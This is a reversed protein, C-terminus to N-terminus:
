EMTRLSTKENMMILAKVNRADKRNLGLFFLGDHRRADVNESTISTRSRGVSTHLTNRLRGTVIIIPHSILSISINSAEEWAIFIM